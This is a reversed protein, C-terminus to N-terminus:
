APARAGRSGLRRGASRTVCCLVVQVAVVSFWPWDGFRQYVTSGHLLPVSVVGSAVSDPPLAWVIQGTPAVLSTVGTTTARLLYRRHEVARLRALNLHLGSAASKRFWSDSTLNILLNPKSALVAARFTRQLIDEYCISLGLRHPGLILAADSNGPRFEERVKTEDRLFRPVLSSEGFPMLTRKDYSGLLQGRRSVLVASNSLPVVRGDPCPGSECRQDDQKLSMGMLVPVTLDEEGPRSARWVDDRIFSRLRSVPTRFYIATEPWVVLDLNPERRLLEASAQRYIRIPDRTELRAPGLNGQVVGIRALEASRVQQGISRLQQWGCLSVAGLTTLAVALASLSEHRRQRDLWAQAFGANVVAIWFSVALPGGFAALQSWIPLTLGFHGTYWPFLAPYLLEISVLAIPFSILPPWHRRRALRYCIAVIASRLALAAILVASGFSAKVISLALVERLGGYLWYFGLGNAVLGQLLGLFAAQGLPSGELAVILLAWSALLAPWPASPDVCVRCLVGSVCAAVIRPM